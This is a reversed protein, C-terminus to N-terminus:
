QLVREARRQFQVAHLGARHQLMVHHELEHQGPERLVDRLHDAREAGGIASRKV